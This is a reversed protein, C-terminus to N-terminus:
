QYFFVTVDFVNIFDCKTVILTIDTQLSMSHNNTEIIKNFDRIDVVIRNKRISKQKLKFM